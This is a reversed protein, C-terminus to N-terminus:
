PVPPPRLTLTTYPVPYPITAALQSQKTVRGRGPVTCEPVPLPQGMDDYTHHEPYWESVQAILPGYRLPNVSGSAVQVIDPGDDPALPGRAAVACIAAM